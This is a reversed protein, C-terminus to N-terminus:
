LGKLIRDYESHSGIWFWLILDNKRVGLAKYQIGIRVSYIENQNDVRKFHLSPHSPDSEFIAYCKDAQEQVSRPLRAFLEHFQPLRRSKM